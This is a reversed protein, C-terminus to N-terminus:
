RFEPFLHKGCEFSKQKQESYVHKVSFIKVNSMRFGSRDLLCPKLIAMHKDISLKVRNAFNKLSNEDNLFSCGFGYVWFYTTLILFLCM